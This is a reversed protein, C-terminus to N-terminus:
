YTRRYVRGGRAVYKIDGRSLGIDNLEYDTLQSLANETNKRSRNRRIARKLVAIKNTITNIM